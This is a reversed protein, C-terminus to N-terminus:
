LGTIHAGLYRNLKQHVEIHLNEFDDHIYLTDKEERIDIYRGNEKIEDINKCCLNEGPGPFVFIRATGFNLGRHFHANIYPSFPEIEVVLPLANLVREVKARHNPTTNMINYGVCNELEMFFPLSVM